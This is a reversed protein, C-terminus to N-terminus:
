VTTEFPPREVLDLGFPLSSSMRRNELNKENMFMEEEEEMIDDDIELNSRTCPLIQNRHWTRCDCRLGRHSPVILLDPSFLRKTRNSIFESCRHPKSNEAPTPANPQSNQNNLDSKPDSKPPDETPEMDLSPCSLSRRESLFLIM